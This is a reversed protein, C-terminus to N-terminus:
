WCRIVKFTSWVEGWGTIWGVVWGGVWKFCWLAVEMQLHNIIDMKTSAEIQWWKWRLDGKWTLYSQSQPFPSIQFWCCGFLTKLEIEYEKRWAHGDSGVIRMPHQAVLKRCISSGVFLLRMQGNTWINAMHGNVLANLLHIHALFLTSQRSVFNCIWMHVFIFSNVPQVASAFWFRSARKTLQGKLQGNRKTTWSKTCSSFSLLWWYRSLIVAWAWFYIYKRIFLCARHRKKIM